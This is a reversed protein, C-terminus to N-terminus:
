GSLDFLSTLKVPSSNEEYTFGGYAQEYFIKGDKIIAVAAAPFVSDSIGKRVLEDIM